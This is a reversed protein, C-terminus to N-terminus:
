HSRNSIKRKDPRRSSRKESWKRWFARWFHRLGRSRRWEGRRYRCTKPNFESEKQDEYALSVNSVNMRSGIRVLVDRCNNGQAQICKLHSVDRGPFMPAPVKTHVVVAAGGQCQGHKKCLQVKQAVSITTFCCIITRTIFVVSQHLM